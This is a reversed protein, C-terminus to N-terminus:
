GAMCAFSFLFSVSRIQLWSISRGLQYAEEMAASGRVEGAEMAGIGLVYGGEKSSRGMRIAAVTTGGMPFMPTLATMTTIFPVAISWDWIDCQM